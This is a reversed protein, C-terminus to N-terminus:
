TPPQLKAIAPVLFQEFYRPLNSKGNQVDQLINLLKSSMSRINLRVILAIALDAKIPEGSELWVTLTVHLRTQNDLSQQSYFRSLRGLVYEGDKEDRCEALVENLAVEADADAPHGPEPEIDPMKPAALIPM